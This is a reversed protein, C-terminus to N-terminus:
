EKQILRSSTKQPHSPLERVNDRYLSSYIIRSRMSTQALWKNTDLGTLSTLTGMIKMPKECASFKLDKYKVKFRVNAIKPEKGCFKSLEFYAVFKLHIDSNLTSLLFNGLFFIKIKWINVTVGCLPCGLRITSGNTLAPDLTSSRSTNELAVRIGMKLLIEVRGKRGPDLM